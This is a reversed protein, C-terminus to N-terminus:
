LWRTFVLARFYMLLTVVTQVKLYWVTAISFFIVMESYKM